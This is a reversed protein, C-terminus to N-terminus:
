KSGERVHASAAVLAERVIERVPVGHAKAAAVCADFEPKIQPPGFPGEAIKVPIVGFRTAVNEIRRPREVRLAAIKRVGLSTTERLMVAAISEANAATALASVTLAPRGKKMTIPTAWVDLAGATFLAEMCSAVLEGTADDINTEVVVHTSPDLDERGLIARLLNPRDKLEAKGAGWGITEPTFSPWRSSLAAHAGVIAAGTPTVLEFDIGGDYTPLGALCEVTAPAPLPLIGHRANVFGRGMPLPSVVLKADLYTLAAASGVVDVIADIAGVEHFHVHDLPMKHVKAESKALRLFTAHARAKVAADLGSSDLIGRIEAYTREPQATDVHVDFSTAVIGSKVRTGFHIHFGTIPLKSVAEAVVAAPVGLDVLAAIIMDGALGSPADLFLTKGTGAGAKLPESPVAVPPHEGEAHPHPPTDVHDSGTGHPHGHEHTHDHNHGHGDHAM